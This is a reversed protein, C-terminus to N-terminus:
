WGSAQFIIKLFAAKEEPTMLRPKALDTFQIPFLNVGLYRGNYFTHLDIFAYNCAFDTCYNLQDFFLNGLGYHILSNGEFAFGHPQHSQSGSVITAGFGAVRGFDRALDPETQYTYYEKHQFTFIIQYGQVVLRPVEHSLWDFDCTAAGPTTATAYAYAPVENKVANGINCGIFALRNGNHELLVAQRALDANVGGGYFAWGREQYLSITYEMAEAGWDGFHDGTLEVVDTGVADLLSLYRTDSCFTIPM